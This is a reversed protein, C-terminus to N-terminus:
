ESRKAEAPEPLSESPPIAVEQPASEVPEVPVEEDSEFPIDEAPEFAPEEQPFPTDEAPSSPLEPVIFGSVPAEEVFDDSEELFLDDAVPEVQDDPLPPLESDFQSDTHAEGVIAAAEDPGSTLSVEVEQDAPDVFDPKQPVPEETSM